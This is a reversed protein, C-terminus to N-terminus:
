LIRASRAREYARAKFFLYPLDFKFINFGVLTCGKLEDLKTLFFELPRNENKLDDIVPYISMENGNFVGITIISNNSPNLAQRRPLRKRWDQGYTEIDFVIFKSM